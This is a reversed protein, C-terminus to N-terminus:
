ETDVPATNALHATIQPKVLEIYDESSGDYLTPVWAAAAQVGLPLLKRESDTTCARRIRNAITDCLVRIAEVLTLTKWSKEDFVMVQDARKPSLYVNRGAPDSHARRLLDVLAEVVYPAALEADVKEADPLQCYNMLKPNQTFAAVLMATPIVLRDNGEWSRINIQTNINLIPGTNLTGIVNNVTSAVAPAAVTQSNAAPLAVATSSTAAALATQKELLATLKEMNEEMRAMKEDRQALQRQVTHEMLMEMGEESGAIKCSQRMHRLASPRSTFTRGCFKCPHDKAPAVDDLIAECPTKRALHTKLRCPAAFTKNCRHCTRDAMTLNHLSKTPDHEKATLDHIKTTLDHRLFLCLKVCRANYTKSDSLVPEKVMSRSGKKARRCRKRGKRLIKDSPVRNSLPDPPPPPPGFAPRPSPRCSFTPGVKALVRCLARGRDFRRTFM